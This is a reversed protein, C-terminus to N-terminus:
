LDYPKLNEKLIGSKFDLVLLEFSTWHAGIVVTVLADALFDGM